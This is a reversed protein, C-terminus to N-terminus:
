HAEAPPPSAPGGSDFDCTYQIRAARVGRHFNESWPVTLLKRYSEFAKRVAETDKLKAGLPELTTELSKQGGTGLFTELAKRLPIVNGERKAAELGTWFALQADLYRTVSDRYLTLSSPWSKAAALKTKLEVIKKENNFDPLLEPSVSHITELTEKPPSGTLLCSSGFLSVRIEEAFSSPLSFFLTLPIVAQLLMM